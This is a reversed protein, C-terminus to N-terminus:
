PETGKALALLAEWVTVLLKVVDTETWHVEGFKEFMDAQLMSFDEFAPENTIEAVFAQVVTSTQSLSGLVSQVWPEQFVGFPFVLQLPPCMVKLGPVYEQWNM